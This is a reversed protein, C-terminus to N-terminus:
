DISGRHFRHPPPCCLRLRVLHRVKALVRHSTIALLSRKSQDGCIFGPERNNNDVILTCGNILTCAKGNTFGYGTLLPIVAHNWTLPVQTCLGPGRLDAKSIRPISAGMVVTGIGLAVKRLFHRRQVSGDSLQEAPELNYKKANVM